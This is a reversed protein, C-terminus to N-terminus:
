DWVYREDFEIDHKRLFARYEDQFSVSKHHEEQNAIYRRVDELGSRSVTFAAYGAQWAFSRRDPFTRHVWGSSNAKLVRVADPIPLPAPLYTLVHVHDAVGGILVPKARAEILIGGLYDHLRPRLDVDITPDRHKTSFIVHYLLNTLSQPM